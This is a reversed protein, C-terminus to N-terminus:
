LRRQWYRPTLILGVYPRRAMLQVDNLLRRVVHERTPRNHFWRTEPATRAAPLFRSCLHQLRVKAIRNKATVRPHGPRCIDCM